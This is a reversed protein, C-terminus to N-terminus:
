NPFLPMVVPFTQSARRPPPFIYMISSFASSLLFSLFLSLGLPFSLASASSFLYLLGSEIEEDNGGASGNTMPANTERNLEESEFPVTPSKKSKSLVYLLSFFLLHLPASRARKEKGEKVREM